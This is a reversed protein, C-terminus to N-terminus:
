ETAYNGFKFNWSLTVIPRGFISLKYGNMKGEENRFYVSYANNRGTLNYVSLMWFSHAAKYKRLNGELNVSFDMRFYDPIRYQNRHSYEIYESGHQYYVSLPYTVPRGTLYEITSSFSIRRSIRFNAVLNFNHPRDYNSPYSLGENIREEPLASDFFMWSRSYSYALWGSLKGANKKIMMELGYAHQAGQVVQTEIHPSTIFNAGDKYDVVDALQKYYIEASTNLGLGPMDQYYGLSFQDVIPPRIHFDSLKWQDTPSIAITNSLMFIYQRVRNYSIKVSNHQGTLYTLSFRPEPGSYIQTVQGSTYHLTDIVNGPRRGMGEGYMLIEAPGLNLFTSYRFGLYATLRSSISIEDAIYGALELGMEAGLDVPFRLSNEGYPEVLGKDLDYIIGNAGFTLRHRGLSLWTHDAKLEYHNIRYSHQYAASEVETNV